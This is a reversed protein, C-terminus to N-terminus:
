GLLVKSIPGGVRSYCNKAANTGGMFYIPLSQLVHKCLIRRGTHSMTHLRWGGFKKQVKGVMPRYHRSLVKGKPLPYGLYTTSDDPEKAPLVSLIKRQVDGRTRNSFWIISKAGNIKLGSLKGFNDLIEKLKVAEQETAKGFLIVDDAYLSHILSLGNQTLCVGDLGGEEQSSCLTRSLVEM